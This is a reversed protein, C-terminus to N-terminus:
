FQQPVSDPLQHAISYDASIGHYDEVRMDSTRWLTGGHRLLRTRTISTAATFAGSLPRYPSNSRMAIRRMWLTNSTSRDIGDLRYLLVQALQAIGIMCDFMSASIHHEAELGEGVLGSGETPEIRALATAQMGDLDLAVDTVSQRRFKYGEGYFRQYGAGLLLEASRYRGTEARLVGREHEITCRVKLPGIRCDFATAALGPGSPETPGSVATVQFEELDEHPAVGAKIDIERLWMRRRQEDDLGYTHAVYLEGLQVGLLMADISSLHPRLEVGAKKRSWDAPYKLAAVASVRGGDPAPEVVVDGIHHFVRRFGGGFYRKEGPGLYDDVSRGHNRGPVIAGLSYPIVLEQAATATM